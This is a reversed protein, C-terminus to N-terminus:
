FRVGPRCDCYHGTGGDFERTDRLAVRDVGGRAVTQLLEGSEVPASECRNNPRGRRAERATQGCSFSVDRLAWYDTHFRRQNFTALEKLRDGPAAYISYSKSVNSFEVAPGSVISITSWSSPNLYFHINM